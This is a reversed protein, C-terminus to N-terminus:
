ASPQLDQVFYDPTLPEGTANAILDDWRLRSGLAFIKEQLYAGVAPSTVLATDSFQVNQALVVRRLHHLLQSAMMEGMLYNHYYVPALALHLKAAWDPRDRDDMPTIDQFKQVLQWWLGNLDQGPNEYMAREFHAMVLVWRVFILLQTQMEKRGASAVAEAKAKDVGAYHALFAATKSQRGMLQAIAETTLIHAPERLFYPLDAALYVDHVAHGFEHLMTGMWRESETCNCLVRVDDFRGVHLCFAHQNKNEREYLDSRTLIDKIELGIAAFFQGTLTELNKGAYFTDFDVEGQPAEQFFPDSYHYPRLDAVDIGFKAALETDLGSKYANFLPTTKEALDDLLAFLTDQEQEQLSLSMAYYNPYGLRVAERNRLAVLRLVDTVVQSGIEKSAEWAQQRLTNDTSSRLIDRVANDGVPEGNLLPRYTNYLSEVRRETDVLEEIVADDMQSGTFTNLLLTHQRREDSSLTATDVTKLYAYAAPDAYLRTLQKQATAARAEAEDSSTINAQWWADGSEIEVPEVRGRHWALFAAFNEFDPLTNTSPNM